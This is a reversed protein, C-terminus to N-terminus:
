DTGAERAPVAVRDPFRRALLEVLKAGSLPKMVFEDTGVAAFDDRVQQRDSGSVAIIPVDARATGLNRIRRAAEIGDLVPMRHDLFIIDFPEELVAQVAEAGNEVTRVSVGLRTLRAAAMDRNLADDDAILVRLGTVFDKPLVPMAVVGPLAGAGGPVESLRLALGYPEVPKRAGAHGADQAPTKSWLVFRPVDALGARGGDGFAEDCVLVSAGSVPATAPMVAFGCATFARTLSAALRDNKVGLWLTMGQGCPKAMREVPQDGASLELELWFASGEGRKSSVGVSGGMLEALQKSIALGLGTGGFLRATSQDAQSFNEFLRKAQGETLGVGTDSVCFRLVDREAVRQEELTLVIEGAETFKAANSLYNLLIQRLRLPDGKIQRPVDPAIDLILEIGKAAAVPAVSELAAHALDAVDFDISEIVLKGSEAKSLDLVDNVIQVLSQGSAIAKSLFPRQHETLPGDVALELFGILSHLPTRIEHSMTSLFESKLRAAQDALDKAQRLSQDTAHEDTIDEIVWVEGQGSGSCALAVTRVRAWFSAGDQRKLQEVFELTEGKPLAVAAKGLWRKAVKADPFLMRVARDRVEAEGLGFTRMLEANWEVIRGERVLAIGFPAVDFFARQVENRRDLQETREAVARELAQQYDQLIEASRREATVDTLIAIVERHGESPVVTLLVSLRIPQGDKKIHTWDFKATGDAILTREIEGAQETSARGDPQIAPSIELFSKDELERADDYGLLRAAAANLSQYRDGSLVAIPLTANAAIASFRQESNALRITAAKAWDAARGFRFRFYVAAGAFLAAGAALVGLLIRLVLAAGERALITGIEDPIDGALGGFSGPKIRAVLTWGFSPMDGTVVQPVVATFYDVGDPWRVMRSAPQADAAPILGSLDVKGGSHGDTRIAATGDAGVLYLEIGLSRAIGTLYREAWQANIHVGLVGRVPGRELPLAFDLFRLPEAETGGLIKNLLVAEHVDGAYAGKLGAAFWPRQSVDAGVLMGRSAAIVVGDNGAVGAWSIRDQDLVLTDLAQQLSRIDGGSYTRATWVIRQWDEDLANAFALAAGSARVTVAREISATELQETRTELMSQGALFFALAVIGFIGFVVGAFPVSARATFSMEPRSNGNDYVIRLADDWLRRVVWLSKVDWLTHCLHEFTHTM